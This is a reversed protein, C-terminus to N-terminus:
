QSKGVYNALMKRWTRILAGDMTAFEQPRYTTLGPQLPRARTAGQANATDM